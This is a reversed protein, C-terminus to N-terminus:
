KQPVELNLFRAANLGLMKARDEDSIESMTREIASASHPWTGEHHPYDNAWLYNDTLNFQQALALGPPDEGFSAWFSRRYHESPLLELKPFAFMHHKHYAEDM